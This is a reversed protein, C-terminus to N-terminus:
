HDFRVLVFFEKTSLNVSNLNDFIEHMKISMRGTLNLVFLNITLLYFPFLGEM